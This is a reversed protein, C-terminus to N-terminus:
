SEQNGGDVVEYTGTEIETMVEMYHKTVEQYVTLPLLTNKIEQRAKLDREKDYAATLQSIFEDWAELDGQLVTKFTEWDSM